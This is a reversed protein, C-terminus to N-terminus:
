GGVEHPSTGVGAPVDCDHELDGDLVDGHVVLVPVPARRVVALAISGLLAPTARHRGRRGVVILDCGHEVAHAILMAAPDGKAQYTIVPVDAVSAAARRVIDAHLHEVLEVPQTAGGWFTSSSIPTVSLLDLRAHSALALRAAHALALRAERSGDVGVVIHRYPGTNDM